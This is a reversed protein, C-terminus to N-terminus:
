QFYYYVKRTSTVQDKEARVPRKIAEGERNVQAILFRTGEGPFWM